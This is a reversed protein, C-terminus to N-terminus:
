LLDDEDFLGSVYMYRVDAQCTAPPVFGSILKGRFQPWLNEKGCHENRAWCHSPPSSTEHILFRSHETTTLGSIIIGLELFSKNKPNEFPTPNTLNSRRVSASIAM